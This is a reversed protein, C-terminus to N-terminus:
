EMLEADVIDRGIREVGPISGPSGAGMAPFALSDGHTDM